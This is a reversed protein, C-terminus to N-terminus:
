LPFIHTMELLEDATMKKSAAHPWSLWAGPDLPLASERIGLYAYAYYGVTTPEISYDLMPSRGENESKFKVVPLSYRRGYERTSESAVEYARLAGQTKCHPYKLVTRGDDLLGVYNHASTALYKQVGAPRWYIVQHVQDQSNVGNDM